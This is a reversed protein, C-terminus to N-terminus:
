EGGGWGAVVRKASVLVGSVLQEGLELSAELSKGGTGVFIFCNPTVITTGRDVV